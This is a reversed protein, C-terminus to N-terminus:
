KRLERFLDSVADLLSLDSYRGSAREAAERLREADIPFGAINLAAVASALSEQHRAAFHGDFTWTPESKAM